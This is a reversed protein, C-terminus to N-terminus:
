TRHRATRERAKTGVWKVFGQMPVGGGLGGEGLQDRVVGLSRVWTPQAM